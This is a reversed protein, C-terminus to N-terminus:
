VPKNLICFRSASGTQVYGHTCTLNNAYYCMGDSSAVKNKCHAYDNTILSMTPARFVNVSHIGARV